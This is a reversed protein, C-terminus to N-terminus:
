DTKLQFLVEDTKRYLQLIINLHLVGIPNCMRKCCYMFIDRLHRLGNKNFSPPCYNYINDYTTNDRM